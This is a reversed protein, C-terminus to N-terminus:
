EGQYTACMGLSACIKDTDKLEDVIMKLIQGSYSDVLKKCQASWPIDDCLEHLAKEVEEKTKNGKLKNDLKQM